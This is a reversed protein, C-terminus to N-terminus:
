ARSSTRRARPHLRDRRHGRRAQGDRELVAAASSTNVSRRLESRNMGLTRSLKAYVLAKQHPDRPLKAPSIKVANGPKNDVLVGGNRDLIQGRPADVKIERVRNNNAEALYKDGSLVQLYWLRFFIIAFMVLAVGGIIAVRLALQPSMPRDNETDRYMVATRGGGRPRAPRDPRVREAGRPPQPPAGDSRLGPGPRLVRVLAFLPLALLTNLLVTIIMERLVLIVGARRRRAHVADGRRSCTAWRRSLGVPMPILGHAPDRVEPFRGVFYGVVTLILSTAGLTQGLAADLLLGACFGVIAGPVSGAYLGIAAVFLVIIDTNGGLMHLPSIRTVQLVVM